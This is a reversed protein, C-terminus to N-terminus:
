VVELSPRTFRDPYWYRMLDHRLKAESIWQWDLVFLMASTLPAGHDIVATMLDTATNAFLWNLADEYSQVSRVRSHSARKVAREIAAHAKCHDPSTKEAVTM